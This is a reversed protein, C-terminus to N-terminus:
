IDSFTIASDNLYKVLRFTLISNSRSYEIRSHFPSIQLKYGIDMWKEKIVAKIIRRHLLRNATLQASGTLKLKNWIPEYLRMIIRTWRLQNPLKIDHGPYSHGIRYVEPIALSTIGSRGRTCESLCVLSNLFVKCSQTWTMRM